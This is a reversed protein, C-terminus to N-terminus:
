QGLTPGGRTTIQQVALAGLQRRRRLEADFTQAITQGGKVASHASRRRM